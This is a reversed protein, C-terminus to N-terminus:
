IYVITESVPENLSLIKQHHKEKLDNIDETEIM